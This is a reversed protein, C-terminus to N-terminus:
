YDPWAHIIRCSTSCPHEAAAIRHSLVPAARRRQLGAGQRHPGDMKHSPTARVPSRPSLPCIMSYNQWGGARMVVLSAPLARSSVAYVHVAGGGEAQKAGAACCMCHPVAAMANHSSNDHRLQICVLM